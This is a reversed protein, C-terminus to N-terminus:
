VQDMIYSLVEDSDLEYYHITGALYNYCSDEEWRRIQIGKTSKMFTRSHYVDPMYQLYFKGVELELYNPEFGLGNITGMYKM